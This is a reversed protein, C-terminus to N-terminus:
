KGNLLLQASAGIAVHGYVANLKTDFQDPCSPHRSICTVMETLPYEPGSPGPVAAESRERDVVLYRPERVLRHILSSEGIKWSLPGERFGAHHECKDNEDRKCRFRGHMLRDGKTVHVRLDVKLVPLPDNPLRIVVHETSEQDPALWSGTPIDLQGSDVFTHKDTGPEYNWVNYHSGIMRVKTGSVNKLTVKATAYEPRTHGAPVQGATLEVQETVGAETTAPAYDKEYWFQFLGIFLGVAALVTAVAPLRLGWGNALSWVIVAMPIFVMVALAAWPWLARGGGALWSGFIVASVVIAALAGLLGRSRGAESDAVFGHAGFACVIGAFAVLGGLVRGSQYEAGFVDVFGVSIGFAATAALAAVFPWRLERDLKSWGTQPDTAPDTGPDDFSVPGLAPGAVSQIGDASTRFDPLGKTKFVLWSGSAEYRDAVIRQKVGTTYTVTFTAMM